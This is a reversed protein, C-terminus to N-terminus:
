SENSGGMCKPLIHHRETYVDKPYKTNLAKEILANYTKYYWLRNHYEIEEKTM